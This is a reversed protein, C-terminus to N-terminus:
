KIHCSMCLDSERPGATLQNSATCNATGQTDLQAIAIQQPKDDKLKHCSVCSVTGDVLLINPDLSTRSQYGRPKRSAHENYDMGVPHNVNMTGSMQLPSSANKITIHSAGGVGNHCEMCGRAVADLQVDMMDMTSAQVESGLLWDRFSGASAVPSIFASLTTALVLLNLTKM